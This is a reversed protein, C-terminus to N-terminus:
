TTIVNMVAVNMDTMSGMVTAGNVTFVPHQLIGTYPDIMNENPEM